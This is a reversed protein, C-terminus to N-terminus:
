SPSVGCPMKPEPEIIARARQLAIAYRRLQGATLPPDTHLTGVPLAAALLEALAAKTEAAAADAKLRVQKERYLRQEEELATEIMEVITVRTIRNTYLGSEKPMVLRVGKEELDYVLRSFDRHAMFGQGFQSTYDVRTGLGQLAQALIAALTTKGAARGGHIKVTLTPEDQKM